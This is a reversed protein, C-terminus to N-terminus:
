IHRDNTMYFNHIRTVRGPYIKNLNGTKQVNSSLKDKDVIFEIMCSFKDNIPHAGYKDTEAYKKYDGIYFFEIKRHDFEVAIVDGIRGYKQSVAIIKFDKNKFIGTSNDLSVKNSYLFRYQLTDKNTVLRREMFCKFSNDKNGKEPINWRQYGLLNVAGIIIVLVVLVLKRITMIHGGILKLKKFSM